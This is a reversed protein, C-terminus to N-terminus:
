PDGAARYLRVRKRHDEEEQPGYLMKPLGVGCSTLAVRGAEVIM